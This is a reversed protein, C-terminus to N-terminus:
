TSATSRCRRRRWAHRRRHRAAAGRHPPGAVRGAPHPVDRQGAGIDPDGVALASIKGAATLYRELLVPSVGLVDAINDFGYASDDPPLLAAPDVELAASRPHRQRVRRPEPPAAAAPGPEPARAAARDLTTTLCAVLGDRTTRDPQPAGQPPMMGVRVKRVVKEWVDPSQPSTPSTWAKSRCAAPRRASTTAPSAPVAQRHRRAHRGGGRSQARSCGGGPPRTSDHPSGTGPVRCRRRDLLRGGVGRGRARQVRSEGCPRGRINRWACSRARATITSEVGARRRRARFIVYKESRLGSDAASFDDLGRLPPQIGVPHHRHARALM